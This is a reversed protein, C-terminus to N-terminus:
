EPWGKRVDYTRAIELDDLGAIEDLKRQAIGDIVALEEARQEHQRIEAEMEADRFPSRALAVVRDLVQQRIRARQQHERMVMARLASRARTISDWAARNDDLNGGEDIWFPSPQVSTKHADRELAEVKAELIAVRAGLDTFAKLLWDPLDEPSYPDRPAVEKLPAADESVPVVVARGAEVPQQLEELRREVDLRESYAQAVLSLDTLISHLKFEPPTRAADRGAEEALSVLFAHWDTATNNINLTGM